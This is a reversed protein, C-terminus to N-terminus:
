IGSSADHATETEAETEAIHKQGLTSLRYCNRGAQKANYMALDASLILSHANDGSDPYVAIGISVGIQLSRGDVNFPRDLAALIKRAVIEADELCDLDPLLIVFEDGGQRSVTDSRRVLGTLRNAVRKLRLDSWEHGYTDKDRIGGTSSM